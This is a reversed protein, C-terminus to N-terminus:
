KVEISKIASSFASDYDGSVSTFTIIVTKDSLFVMVQTQEMPVGQMSMGYSYQIADKGNITTKQFSGSQFDEMLTSYYADLIEQSYGSAADAGSYTFVINDTKEPYEKPYAVLTASSDDVTFGEPLSLLVGQYEYKDSSGGGCAALCLVMWVALALAALKKTRMM